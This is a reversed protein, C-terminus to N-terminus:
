IRQAEILVLIESQKDQRQNGILWGLFPLRDDQEERRDDELGALVVVEGPQLSLRTNVARKILTPSNNVGTNTAVFSSLEQSLNLEIVEARIEPTATLIIGSQRYDVSQVPNGNRDVQANGLVPVDSGVAFRAQAGNRVRVRPRSISKFRSDADLASLVADIGGFALKVSVGDLVNGSVNFGFKGGLLSAALKVAGGEKRDTGVEYVAAKLVIESAQTDLEALLKRVKGAEKSSVTFAVQDVEARDIMGAASSLSEQQRPQNQMSVNRAVPASQVANSHQQGDQNRVARASLSRAGTVSQVVDALYRSSRHVPRYVIIEDEAPKAKDIWVVGAHRRIEFGSTMLINGVQDVAKKRDLGRLNLSVAEQVQLAEHTLVYPERSLEGYTVRALDAVSVSEFMLSVTDAAQLPACVALLAALCMGQGKRGLRAAIM